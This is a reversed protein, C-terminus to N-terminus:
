NSDIRKINKIKHVLELQLLYSLLREPFLQILFFIILSPVRMYYPWINKGNNKLATYYNQYHESGRKMNEDEPVRYFVLNEQMNSMKKDSSLFRLWLEMDEAKNYNEDFLGVELLDKRKVIISSNAIPMKFLFQKKIENYFKPYRREGIINDNENVLLINTGVLSIDENEELFNIQLLFKNKDYYDDSDVIAIYKSESNLIGYNRSAALGPNNSNCLLVFKSNEKCISQLYETNIDDFSDIIIYFKYDQFTQSEISEICKRLFLFSENKTAMLISLLPM